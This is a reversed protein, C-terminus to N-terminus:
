GGMNVLRSMSFGSVGGATQPSAAGRQWVPGAGVAGFGSAAAVSTITYDGGAANVFPSALLAADDLVGQYLNKGTKLTAHGFSVNNWSTTGSGYDFATTAGQVVNNFFEIMNSGGQNTIGPGGSCYVSNNAIVVKTVGYIYISRNTGGVVINNAFTVYWGSVNVVDGSGTRKIFNNHVWHYNGSLDLTGCIANGFVHNESYGHYNGRIINGATVGYYSGYFTSCTFDLDRYHYYLKWPAFNVATGTSLKAIGGDGAVTTYGQFVIPAFVGGNTALVYSVNGTTDTNAGAKINFRTGNTADITTNNMAYQLTLYPNALTGRGPSDIGNTPDSYVESFAM